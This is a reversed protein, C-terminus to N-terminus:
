TTNKLRTLESIGVPNDCFAGIIQSLANIIGIQNM